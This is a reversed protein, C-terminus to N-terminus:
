KNGKAKRIIVATGMGAGALALIAVVAISMSDGTQPLKSEDAHNTNSATSDSDHNGDSSGDSDGTGATVPIVKGKFTSVANALVVAMEDMASQDSEVSAAITKAVNIVGLLETKASEPYQGARDRICM